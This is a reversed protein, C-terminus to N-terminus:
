KSKLLEAQLVESFSKSEQKRKMERAIIVNQKDRGFHNTPKASQLKQLKYSLPLM